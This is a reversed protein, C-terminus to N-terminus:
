HKCGGLYQKFVAVAEQKRGTHLLAEHLKEAAPRAYPTALLSAFRDIAGPYDGTLLCVDGRLMLAQEKLIGDSIMIELIDAAEDTRQGDILLLALGTRPLPNLPNSGSAERLCAESEAVRGLRHLIMGKEYCYIDRDADHDWQELLELALEHDDRSASLYMAAFADGLGAYRDYMEDPLQRILLNYYDHPAMDLGDDATLEQNQPESSSCSQCHGSATEAVVVQSDGSEADLASLMQEAKLRLLPDDTLALALELHEVAKAADGRGACFEAEILNLEALAANSRAIRAIFVEAVADNESGGAKALHFQLGDEYRSRAEFYRETAQLEDGRALFDDASKSFIRSFFGM